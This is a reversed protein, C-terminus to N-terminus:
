LGGVKLMRGVELIRPSLRLPGLGWGLPLSNKRGKSFFVCGVVVAEVPPLFAMIAFIGLFVLFTGDAFARRPGSSVALM